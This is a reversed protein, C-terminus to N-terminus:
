RTYQSSAQTAFTKRQNRLLSLGLFPIRPKPRALFSLLVLFHFHPSPSPFSPFGRGARQKSVGNKTRDEVRTGREKSRFRMSVSAVCALQSCLRLSCIAKALNSYDELSNSEAGRKDQKILVKLFM